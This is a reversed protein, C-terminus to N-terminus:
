ISDNKKDKLITKFIDNIFDCSINNKNEHNYISIKREALENDLFECLKEGYIFRNKSLSTEKKRKTYRKYVEEPSAFISLCVNPLPLVNLLLVVSKKEWVWGEEVVASVLPMIVGCDVLLVHKDSESRRSVNKNISSCRLGLKLLLRRSQLSGLFRLTLYPSKAFMKIALGLAWYVSCILESAIPKIIVLDGKIEDTLCKQLTTKGTGPLGFMEILVMRM